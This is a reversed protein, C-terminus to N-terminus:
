KINRIEKYAKPLDKIGREESYCEDIAYIISNGCEAGADLGLITYITWESTHWELGGCFGDVDINVFGIFNGNFDNVVLDTGWWGPNYYYCFNSPNNQITSVMDCICDFICVENFIANTDDCDVPVGCENELTVWGDGDEDILMVDGHKEHGKWANVSVSIINGKHCVDIKDSQRATMDETVSTEQPLEQIIENECAMFGAFVLLLLLLKKM